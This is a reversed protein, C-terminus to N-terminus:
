DDDIILDPYLRRACKPCISHTFEADSHKQIYAEIRHWYGEDDRINKCSSCIPIFGRLLKVESLAERLESILQKREKEMKAKYLVIELTAHLERSEIPKIMYGFPETLKAQKLFTDDAHATLYVVPTGYDTKIIQATQIGNLDGKLQIDMLVLDPQDKEMWKLAKEGSNVVRTVLYGLEKLIDELHIALIAEDEVILIKEGNM